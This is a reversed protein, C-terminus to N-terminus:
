RNLLWIGVCIEFHDRRIKSQRTRIRRCTPTSGSALTAQRDEEDMRETSDEWGKAELMGDIDRM